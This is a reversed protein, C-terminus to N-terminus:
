GHAISVEIVLNGERALYEVSQVPLRPQNGRCLSRFDLLKRRRFPGSHGIYKGGLPNSRGLPRVYCGDGPHLVAIDDLMNPHDSAHHGTHYLGVDFEASSANLAVTVDYRPSAAISAFYIYAGPWGSTDQQAVPPGAFQYWRACSRVM